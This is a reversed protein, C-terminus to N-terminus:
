TTIHYGRAQEARGQGWGAGLAAGLGAGAGRRNVTPVALHGVVAECRVGGCVVHELSNSTSHSLNRECGDPPHPCVTCRNLHDPSTGSAARRGGDDVGADETWGGRRRRTM